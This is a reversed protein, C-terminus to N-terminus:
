PLPGYAAVLPGMNGGSATRFIGGAAWISASGPIPAVANLSVDEAFPLSSTYTSVWKSGTWHQFPSVWVGSKGDYAMKGSVTPFGDHVVLIPTATWHKGTWHFLTEPATATALSAEVWLQGDPAAVISSDFSQIRDAPAPVKRLRGNTAEYIVPIGSPNFSGPHRLGTLGLFWAHRGVATMDTTYVGAVKTEAWETGNWHYLCTSRAPLAYCGQSSLPDGWVDAAGVVASEGFGLTPLDITRWKKTTGNWVHAQPVATDSASHVAIGFIWVNGPSTADVATPITPEFGTTDPVKTPKWKSGNWNLIIPQADSVGVAWADNKTPATVSVMEGDTTSHTRYVVKWHPATAAPAAAQATATGALAAAGVALVAVASLRATTRLGRDTGYRKKVARKRESRMTLGATRM